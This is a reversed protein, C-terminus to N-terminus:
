RKLWKKHSKYNPDLSEVLKWFKKGHGGVKLHCVEHIVIHDIIKKPTMILKYSFTLNKQPSCSGWISKVDKIRIINAEAHLKQSYKAVKTKIRPQGVTGYWNKFLKRAEQIKEKKTIKAPLKLIFQGNKLNLSTTKTRKTAIVKLRYHQGLYLFQEGNIFMKRQQPPNQRQERQKKRIWPSKENVFKKIISEKLRLPARVTVKGKKDLIISTTRRRSRIITYKVLFPSFDEM